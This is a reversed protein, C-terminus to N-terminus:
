DRRNGRHLFGFITLLALAYGSPEPVTALAANTYGGSQFAAVLDSSSFEGDANWDGHAWSSNQAIQDEYEGAKFVAVLDSSNFTGDLNADGITTGIQDEVLTHLDQVDLEGDYNLDFRKDPDQERIAVSLRNIDDIDLLDNQDFDSLLRIGSFELLDLQYYESGQSSNSFSSFILTVHSWDDPIEATYMNTGYANNLREGIVADGYLEFVSIRDEGNTAVLRVFDGAEYGTEAIIMTADLEISEFARVDIADFITTASVSRHQFLRGLSADDDEIVGVHPSTGTNAFHTQFNMEFPGVYNADGVNPRSFKTGAIKEAPPGIARITGDTLLQSIDWDISPINTDIVLQDFEGEIIPADLIPIARESRPRRGAVYNLHMSGALSIKDRAQFLAHTTEGNFDGTIQDGSRFSFENQAIVQGNLRVNWIGGDGTDVVPPPTFRGRIGIAAGPGVEITGANVISEMSISSNASASIHGRVVADGRIRTEAGEATEVTITEPIVIPGRLSLSSDDDLLFSAMGTLQHLSIGADRDVTFSVDQFVVDLSVGLEQGVVFDGHLVADVIAGSIRSGSENGIITGGTVQGDVVDYSQMAFTNDHNDFNGGYVIEGGSPNLKELFSPEYSGLLHLTGRRVDFMGESSLLYDDRRSGITLVAGDGDVIFNGSADPSVIVCEAQTGVCNLTGAFKNVFIEIESGDTTTVAIGEHIELGDGNIRSKNRHNVLITGNGKIEHKTPNTVSGISGAQLEIQAGGLDISDEIGLNHEVILNAGLTVNHLISSNSPSALVIPSSSTITGNSIKGELAREHPFPLSDLSLTKGELQLNGFVIVPRDNTRESEIEITGFTEPTLEGNFMVYGSPGIRITGENRSDFETSDNLGFVMSGQVDILGRNIVSTTLRDRSIARITGENIANTVRGRDVFEVVVEPDITVVDNRSASIQGDVKFRITGTGAIHNSSEFLLKGHIEAISDDLTLPGYVPFNGFNDSDAALVVNHLESDHLEAIGEGDFRVDLVRRLGGHPGSTSVFRSGEGLNVNPADFDGAYMMYTSNTIHLEDLSVNGKEQTVIADNVLSISAVNLDADIAVEANAITVDYTVGPPTGNQPIVNRPWEGDDFWRGELGGNWHVATPQATASPTFLWAAFTFALVFSKCHETSM